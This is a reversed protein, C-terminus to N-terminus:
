APVKSIGNPFKSMIREEYGPGRAQECRRLRLVTNADMQTPVAEPARGTTKLLVFSRSAGSRGDHDLEAHVVEFAGSEELRSPLAMIGPLAYNGSIM